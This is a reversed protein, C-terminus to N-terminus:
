RLSYIYMKWSWELYLWGFLIKSTCVWIYWLPSDMTTTRLYRCKSCCINVPLWVLESHWPNSKWKLILSIINWLIIDKHLKWSWQLFFFIQIEPRVMLHATILTKVFEIWKVKSWDLRVIILYRYTCLM